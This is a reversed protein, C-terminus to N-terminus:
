KQEFGAIVGLLMADMFRDIRAHLGALEVLDGPQVVGPLPMALQLFAGRFALFAQVTDHLSAGALRAGAAQRQGVLNAEGLLRQDDERRSLFHLLLGFVQAQPAAPAPAARLSPPQEIPVHVLPAAESRSRGRLASTARGLRVSPRQAARDDIETKVPRSRSNM